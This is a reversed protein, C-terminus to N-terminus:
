CSGLSGKGKRTDTQVMGGESFTSKFGREKMPHIPAHKLMDNKGM